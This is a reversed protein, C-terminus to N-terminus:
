VLKLEFSKVTVEGGLKTTAFNFVGFRYGTFFQWTNAM